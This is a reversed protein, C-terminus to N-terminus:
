SFRIVIQDAWVKAAGKDLRIRYGIGYGKAAVTNVFTHISRNVTDSVNEWAPADDFPNNCVEASIVCDLPLEEPTPFISLFVKYPLADTEVTRSFSVEEVARSFTLTRSAFGGSEDEATIVLRCSGVALALWAAPTWAAATETGKAAEYTRLIHEAGTCDLLKETVTVIDMVDADNVTYAYAFPQSITGMDANEGTITPPSNYGIQFAAGTSYASENGYIDVAKVRVKVTSKPTEIVNLKGPARLSM